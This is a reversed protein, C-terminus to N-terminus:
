RKFYGKGHVPEVLKELTLKMLIMRVTSRCVALERTVSRESPLRDGVSLDAIMTRYYDEVSRGVTGM